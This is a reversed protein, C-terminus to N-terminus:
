ANAKRIYFEFLAGDDTLYAMENDTRLCFAQFDIVSHPDTAKVHLLQGPAMDALRLKTRLIPLPCNLGTADLEADVTEPRRDNEM